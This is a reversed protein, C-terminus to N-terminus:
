SKADNDNMRDIRRNIESLRDLWQDMDEESLLPGFMRLYIKIQEKEHELEDIKNM